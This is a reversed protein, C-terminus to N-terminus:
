RAQLALEVPCGDAYVGSDDRGARGRVRVMDGDAALQGSGVVAGDFRLVQVAYVSGAPLRMATVDIGWDDFTGDQSWFEIREEDERDRSVLPLALDLRRSHERVRYVGGPAEFADDAWPVFHVGEDVEGDCDNDRCDPREPAGPHTLPDVDSCDGQQESTGDGDDDYAVTGEDIRGDCNDDRGNPTPRELALHNISPDTDDCDYPVAEGDGDRDAGPVPSPVDVPERAGVQVGAVATGLLRDERVEASVAVSGDLPVDLPVVAAAPGGDRWSGAAASWTLRELPCDTDVSLQLAAHDAGDALVQDPPDLRVAVRAPLVGVTTADRAPAGVVEAALSAPGVGEATLRQHGWQGDWRAVEVDGARLAVSEGHLGDVDLEAVWTGCGADRATLTLQPPGRWGVGGCAMAGLVAASLGVAAARGM